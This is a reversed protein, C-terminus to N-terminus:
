AARVQVAMPRLGKHALSPWAPPCGLPPSATALFSRALIGALSSRVAVTAGRKLGGEWVIMLVKAPPYAPPHTQSPPRCPPRPFGTADGPTSVLM